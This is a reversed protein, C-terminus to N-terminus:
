GGATADGTHLAHFVNIKIFHLQRSAAATRGEAGAKFILRNCSVAFIGSKNGSAVHFRRAGDPFARCHRAFRQYRSATQSIILRSSSYITMQDAEGTTACGDRM